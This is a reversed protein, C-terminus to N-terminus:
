EIRACARARSFVADLVHPCFVHAYAHAGSFERPICGAGFQVVGNWVVVDCLCGGFPAELVVYSPLEDSLRAGHVSGVLRAGFSLAVHAGRPLPVATVAAASLEASGVVRGDVLLSLMINDRVLAVHHWKGPNLPDSSLVQTDLEAAGQSVLAVVNGDPLISIRFLDCSLVTEPSPPIAASGDWWVACAVTYFRADHALGRRACFM